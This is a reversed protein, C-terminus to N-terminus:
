SIHLAPQARKLVGGVIRAQSHQKTAHAVREGFAATYARLDNWLFELLLGELIHLGFVHDALHMM